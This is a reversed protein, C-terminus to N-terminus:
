MPLTGAAHVQRARGWWSTVKNKEKLIYSLILVTWMCLWPWEYSWTSLKPLWFKTALVPLWFQYGFKAVM